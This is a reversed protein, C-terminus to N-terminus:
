YVVFPESLSYAAGSERALRADQDFGVPEPLPQAGVTLIMARYEGPASLPVLAVRREGVAECGPGPTPGCRLVLTTQNRWVRIEQRPDVSVKWTGGVAAAGARMGEGSVLETQTPLLPEASRRPLLLFALITAALASGVVAVSRLSFRRRSGQALRVNLREEWGAAPTAQQGAVAILKELRAFSAEAIQCDACGALHSQLEPTAPFGTLGETEYRQCSM